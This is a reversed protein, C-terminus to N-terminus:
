PIFFTIKINSNAQVEKNKKEVYHWFMTPSPVGGGSIKLLVPENKCLFVCNTVLPLSKKLFLVLISLSGGERGLYKIVLHKIFRYFDMIM